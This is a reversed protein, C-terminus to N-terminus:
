KRDGVLSYRLSCACLPDCNGDGVVEDVLDGCARVCDFGFQTTGPLSVGADAKPIGGDLAAEPCREGVASSQSKSLLAVSITEVIRMECACRGGDPLTFNRPASYTSTLVQGDFAGARSVNRLTVLVAGGDSFRSFTAAFNIGNIDSDKVAEPLPCAVSVPTARFQYTGM